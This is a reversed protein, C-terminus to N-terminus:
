AFRLLTVEDPSPGQYDIAGHDDKAVIVEHCLAVNLWFHTLCDRLTRIFIGDEEEGFSTGLNIDFRLGDNNLFDSMLHDAVTSTRGIPVEQIDEQQYSQDDFIKGGVSCVKFEMINATLTGTKDAFIYDISGLEEHLTLNSVKAPINRELDIMEADFQIFPMQFTKVIELTVVLSIPILTNLLIFHAPLLKAFEGVGSLIAEPRDDTEFIFSGSYYLYEAHTQDNEENYRAKEYTFYAGITAMSVCMFLEVVILILVLWNIQKEVQSQKFKSSGQNLMLKTSKGTYIVAGIAWKTNVLKSGRLILQKNTLILVKGDSNSNFSINSPRSARISERLSVM